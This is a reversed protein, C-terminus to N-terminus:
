QPRQAQARPHHLPLSRRRSRPRRRDNSSRASPAPPPHLLRRNRSSAAPPGDVPGRASRSAPASPPSSSPARSSRRRSRRFPRRCSRRRPSSPPSSSRRPPPQSRSTENAQSWAARRASIWSPFTRARLRGIEASLEAATGVREDQKNARGRALTRRARAAGPPVARRFARPRARDAIAEALIQAPEEAEFPM